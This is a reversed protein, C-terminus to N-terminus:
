NKASISVYAVRACVVAPVCNCVDASAHSSPTTKEKKKSKGDLQIDHYLAHGVVIIIMYTSSQCTVTRLASYVVFDECPLPDTAAPHSPRGDHGERWYRRRSLGHLTGTPQSAGPAAKWGGCSVGPPPSDPCFWPSVTAGVSSAMDSTWGCGSGCENRVSNVSSLLNKLTAPGAKM